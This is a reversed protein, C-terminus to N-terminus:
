YHRIPAIPSNGYEDLEEGDGYDDYIDSDSIDHYDEAIENGCWAEDLRGDRIWTLIDTVDEDSLCDLFSYGTIAHHIDHVWQDDKKCLLDLEWKNETYGNTLYNKRVEAGYGNDFGFIYIIGPYFAVPNDKDYFSCDVKAIHKFGPTNLKIKAKIKDVNTM